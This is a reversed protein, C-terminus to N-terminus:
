SRMREQAKATEWADELEDASAEAVTKGRAEISAEMSAFRRRFKESASDLAEEADVGALRAVNVVSFLLDGLEERVRTRDGSALADATESVEEEVKRWAAPADPWDFHVRAAKAQLRHARLLSPLTRPVGDLLSRAKGADAAERQKLAEWQALAEEASAVTASGFVHPHRAVMKGIVGRLVAAMDFEGREEALRAHFVIQFLLDGLEEQLHAADGESLADLVEYTEEVLYPKLSERDQQRDWPCGDPGRLRAMVDLLREFLAGPSDTMQAGSPPSIIGARM